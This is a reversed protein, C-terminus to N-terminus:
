VVGHLLDGTSARIENVSNCAGVTAYLIYSLGQLAQFVSKNSVEIVDVLGILVFGYTFM